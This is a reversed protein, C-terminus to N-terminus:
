SIKANSSSRFPVHLVPASGPIRILCAPVLLVSLTALGGSSGTVFVFLSVGHWLHFGVPGSGLPEALRGGALELAAVGELAVDQRLLRGLTLAVQAGGVMHPFFVGTADGAHHRVRLSFSGHCSDFAADDGVTTVLLDEALGLTVVVRTALNEADGLLGDGLRVLVGVDAALLLLAIEATQPDDADVRARALEAQGVATEDVAQELGADREVALHERVDGDVVDGREARQRLLRLSGEAALRSGSTNATAHRGSRRQTSVFFPLACAERKQQGATMATVAIWRQRSTLFKERFNRTPAIRRRCFCPMLSMSCSAADASASMAAAVVVAASSSRRTATSPLDPVSVASSLEARERGVLALLTAGLDIQRLLADGVRKGRALVFEVAGFGRRAEDGFADVDRQGAAVAIAASQVRDRAREIADARDKRPEAIVDGIARFDLVVPVVEAREVERRVM